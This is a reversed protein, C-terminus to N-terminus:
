ADGGRPGNGQPLQEGESKPTMVLDGAEPAISADDDVTIVPTEPVLLSADNASNGGMTAQILVSNSSNLPTAFVTGELRPIELQQVVVGAAGAAGSPSCSLYAGRPSPSLENECRSWKAEEVPVDSLSPRGEATDGEDRPMSRTANGSFSERPASEPELYPNIENVADRRWRSLILSYSASRASSSAVSHERRSGTRAGSYSAPRRRRKRGEQGAAVVAAAGAAAVAGAAAGAAGAVVGARTGRELDMLEESSEGLSAQVSFPAGRQSADGRGRRGTAGSGEDSGRGRAFASSAPRSPPTRSPLVGTDGAGMFRGDASRRFLVGVSGTTTLGSDAGHGARAGTSNGAGRTGGAAGLARSGHTSSRACGRRAALADAVAMAEDACEQSKLLAEIASM